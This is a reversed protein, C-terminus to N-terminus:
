LTFVRFCSNESKGYTVTSYMSSETSCMLFFLWSPFDLLSDTGRSQQGPAVFVNRHLYSEKWISISGYYLSVRGSHSPVPVSSGNDRMNVEKGWVGM